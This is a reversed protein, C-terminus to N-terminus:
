IKTRIINYSFDYMKVVLWVVSFYKKLWLLKLFIMCKTVFLIITYFGENKLRPLNYSIDCMERQCQLATVICRLLFHEFWQALKHAFFQWLLNIKLCEYVFIIYLKWTINIHILCLRYLLCLTYSKEYLWKFCVIYLMVNNKKVKILDQTHFNMCTLDWIQWVILIVEDKNSNTLIRSKMCELNFSEFNLKLDKCEIVKPIM